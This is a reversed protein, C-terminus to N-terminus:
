PGGESAMRFGAGVPSPWVSDKMSTVSVSTSILRAKRSATLIINPGCEVAEDALRDANEDVEDELAAPQLTEILAAGRLRRRAETKADAVESSADRNLTPRQWVLEGAGAAKTIGDAVRRGHVGM